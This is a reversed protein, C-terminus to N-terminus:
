PDVTFTKTHIFDKPLNPANLHIRLRYSGPRKVDFLAALNTRMVIAEDQPSMVKDPSAPLPKPADPLPPVKQWDPEPLSDNIMEHPSWDLDLIVGAPPTQQGKNPVLNGALTQDVGTRNRIRLVSFMPGGVVLKTFTVMGSETISGPGELRTDWVKSVPAWDAKPFAIEEAPVKALHYPGVYGYYRHWTGNELVEEEQWVSGLSDYVIAYIPDVGNPQTGVQREQPNDHPKPWEATLPLPSVPVCRTKGTLSFIARGQKVDEPTAPHDLPALHFHALNAQHPDDLPRGDFSYCAGYQKLFTTCLAVAEDRKALPWYPQCKPFGEVHSLGWAYLDCIRFSIGSGAPPAAPDHRFLIGSEGPWGNEVELDGYGDKGLTITGGRKKDALGRFLELRFGAMGILPTTLLDEPPTGPNQLLPSFPSKPTGFLAAATQQMLPENPHKWLFEFFSIDQVDASPLKVAWESYEQLVRKDGLQYRTEYLAMMAPLPTHGGRREQDRMISSFQRLAELHGAGDWAALAEALKPTGELSRNLEEHPRAAIELMRKAMLDGVSPATKTRLSEGQMSIVEGPRRVIIAPGGIGNSGGSTNVIAKAAQLWDFPSAQDDNLTAYWREALPTLGYKQHYARILAVLQKRGAADDLTTLDIRTSNFSTKLIGLLAAYSAADVPIITHERRSEPTIHEMRPIVYAARTLRNDEELCQLLPEVAPDGAQVLAVVIPDGAPDLEGEGGNSTGKVLELDRILGAIRENGQPPPITQLVPTYSAEKARREQDALLATLVRTSGLSVDEIKREAIVARIQLFLTTLARSDELALHDEGSSHEKLARQLLQCTWDACLLAYPDKPVHRDDEKFAACLHWMKEALATQGLRLLFASKLRFPAKEDIPDGYLDDDPAQESNLGAAIDRKLDVATGVTAVPYIVGDWCIAFKQVDQSPIVWGHCKRAPVSNIEIESYECGRPDPLGQKFLEAFASVVLAPLKTKPAMWPQSQAPPAPREKDGLKPVVSLDQASLLGSFAFYALAIRFSQAALRHKM